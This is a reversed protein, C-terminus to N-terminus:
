VRQNGGQAKLHGIEGYLELIGQPTEAWGGDDFRSRLVAYPPRKGLGYEEGVFIHHETLAAIKVPRCNTWSGDGDVTKKTRLCYKGVLEGVSM